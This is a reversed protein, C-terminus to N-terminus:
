NRVCSGADYDTPKYYYGPAVCVKDLYRTPTQKPREVIVGTPIPDGGQELNTFFTKVNDHAWPTAAYAADINGQWRADKPCQSPLTRMDTANRQYEEFTYFGDHQPDQVFDMCKAQKWIENMHACQYAVPNVTPANSIVISLNARGGLEADNQDQRFNNRWYTSYAQGVLNTLAASMNGYPAGWRNTESFM